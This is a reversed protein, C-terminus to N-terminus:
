HALTPNLYFYSIAKLCISATFAEPTVQFYRLWNKTEHLIVQSWAPSVKAAKEQSAVDLWKLIKEAIILKGKGTFL